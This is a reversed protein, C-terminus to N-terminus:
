AVAADVETLHEPRSPTAVGVLTDTPRHDGFLAARGIDIAPLQDRGYRAVFSTIKTAQSPPAPPLSRGAAMALPKRPRHRLTMWTASCGTNDEAVQGAILVLKTRTAVVVTPPGTPTLLDTPNILELSMNERWQDNIIGVGRRPFMVCSPSPARGLRLRAYISVVLTQEVGGDTRADREGGTGVAGQRNAKVM